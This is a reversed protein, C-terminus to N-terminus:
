ADVEAHMAQAMAALHKPTTGCCGGILNVGSALLQPVIKAMQRPTAPYTLEGDKSVPSGANPQVLVPRGGAADNMADALRVYDELGMSTGCNAGVVDAGHHYTTNTVEGALTGMMTVFQDGSKQFAYSVVVPWDAVQKAAAIACRAEGVDSMTEILVFDAGGDKLATMQEIFIDTLEDLTTEGMPELFGGFPGVDGAVLGKKKAAERALKAGAKNLEVTRDDLVHMSLAERSGQFTNTTVIDCGAELYAEHITRVKDPEDVNWATGCSGAALGQEFLQTGMGGDFLLPGDELRALLDRQKAM